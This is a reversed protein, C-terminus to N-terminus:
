KLIALATAQIRASLHSGVQSPGVIALCLEAGLGM